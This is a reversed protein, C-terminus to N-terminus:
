VCDVARTLYAWLGWLTNQLEAGVCPVASVASAGLLWAQLCATPLSLAEGIGDVRIDAHPCGQLAPSSSTGGLRSYTVM